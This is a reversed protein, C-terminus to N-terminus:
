SEIDWASGIPRGPTQQVWLWFRRNLAKADEARGANQMKVLAAVLRRGLELVTRLRSM